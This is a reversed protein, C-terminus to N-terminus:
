PVRGPLRRPRTSAWAFADDVVRAAEAASFGDRDHVAAAALLQARVTGADLAGAAALRGLAVAARLLTDHRTGKPASVVAVIENRVAAAVYADVRERAGTGSPGVAGTPLRPPLPTLADALHDPLPAPAVDDPSLPPM